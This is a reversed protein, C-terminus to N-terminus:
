PTPSGLPTSFLRTYEAGSPKLDSKFLHIATVNTTGLRGITTKELATRIKQQDAISIPQRIRGITLHPSFPRADAEYGLRVAAAEIGRQLSTLAPSPHIGIWIVRAQRANPFAGLGGIEISFPPHAQAETSLMDCLLAVNSSSIEGIFKLTLHVNEIPVWRVLEQGLTLRLSVTQDYIAQRISLPIEVAIFVRLLPM